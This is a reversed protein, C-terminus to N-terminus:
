MKPREWVRGRGPITIFLPARCVAVGETRLEFLAIRQVGQKVPLGSRKRLTEMQKVSVSTQYIENRDRKKLYNLDSQVITNKKVEQDTM